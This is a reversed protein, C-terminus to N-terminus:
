RRRNDPSPKAPARLPQRATEHGQERRMPRAASHQRAEHQRAESKFVPGMPNPHGLALERLWDPKQCIAKCQDAMFLEWTSAM